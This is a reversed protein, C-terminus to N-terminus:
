LNEMMKNFEKILAEDRLEKETKERYKWEFHLKVKKIDKATGKDIKIKKWQKKTGQYYIDTLSPCLSFASGEIESLSEPLNVRKLKAHNFFAAYKIVKAGRPLEIESVEASSAICHSGVKVTPTPLLAVGDKGIRGQPYLLLTDGKSDFLCGDISTFYPNYIDVTIRELSRIHHFASVSMNCLSSEIKIEKLSPIYSFAENVIEKVDKTIVLTELSDPPLFRIYNLGNNIKNPDYFCDKGASEKKEFRQLGFIYGLKDRQYRAHESYGGLGGGVMSLTLTKLGTCGNFAGSSIQKVSKPITLSTLGTCDRFASENIYVVSEPITVETLSKNNFFAGDGIVLTGYPIDARTANRDKLRHIYYGGNKLQEYEFPELFKLTVEEDFDDDKTFEIDDYNETIM